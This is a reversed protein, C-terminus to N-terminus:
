HFRGLLSIISFPRMSSPFSINQWQVVDAQSPTKSKSAYGRVWEHSLIILSKRLLRRLPLASERSPPCGQESATSSVSTLSIRMSRGERRDAMTRHDRRIARPQLLPIQFRWAAGDRRAWGAVRARRPASLDGSAYLQPWAADLAPFLDRFPYPRREGDTRRPRPAEDRRRSCPFM